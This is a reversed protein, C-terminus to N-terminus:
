SPHVGSTPNLSPTAIAASHYKALRSQALETPHFRLKIKRTNLLLQVSLYKKNDSGSRNETAASFNESLFSPTRRKLYRTIEYQPASLLRRFIRKNAM